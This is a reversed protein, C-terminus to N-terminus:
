AKPAPSDIKISEKDLMHGDEDLTYTLVQGFLMELNGVDQDSISEIYKMLARISNGHAEIIVNKGTKLLPLVTDLYFPIVREYVMKLTEGNPVPVDWGRRLAEFAEDGLLEKMEWKNKGTYDGYDRENLAKVRTIDVDFMQSADLIGELTERTRIQESCFAVDIPIGLTRVARGLQGSERFGKESLHIDTIGTWQGTANWESEAHRAILLKGMPKKSPVVKNPVTGYWYDIINQATTQNIRQVAELTNFANHPSIIVNPMKKLLSIEVSHRLLEPAIEHSRLLAVEENQNLLAEGEVVDLAAGSLHGSELAEVLAGTDVIEGRATNVLLAGPKMKRINETNLLHHTSPLYPAHITVIDSQALVDDLSAYTFHLSDQLENKPFADYALIRMSFGHAIRLAYQGIHGTGIVGITKVSLDTGLLAPQDLQSSESALVKAMKRTLALLLTFAYEAVTSEGYTPVNLVTIDHEAAADLDINNFGTSRCAIVRLRPLSEIIERTVQSTVFVSIVETDPHLNQTSIKETVFEWHHDTPLLASTLQQKDLETADYFYLLAMDTSIIAYVHAKHSSVNLMIISFIAARCIRSERPFGVTSTSTQSAPPAQPRADTGEPAEVPM